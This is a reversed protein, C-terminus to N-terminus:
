AHATPDLLMEVGFHLAMMLRNTQGQLCLGKADGAQVNLFIFTNENYHKTGLGFFGVLLQRVHGQNQYVNWMHTLADKAGQDFEYLKFFEPLFEPNDPITTLPIALDPIVHNAQKIYNEHGYTIMVVSVLAQRNM